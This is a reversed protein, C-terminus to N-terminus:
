EDEDIQLELFNRVNNFTHSGTFETPQSTWPLVFSQVKINQVSGQSQIARFIM